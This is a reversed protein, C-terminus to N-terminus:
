KSLIKLVKNALAFYIRFKIQALNTSNRFKGIKFDSSKEVTFKYFFEDRM